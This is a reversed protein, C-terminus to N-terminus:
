KKTPSWDITLWFPRSPKDPAAFARRSTRGLLGRLKPRCAPYVRATAGFGTEPVPLGSWLKLVLVTLTPASAVTVGPPPVSSQFNPYKPLKANKSAEPVFAGNLLRWFVIKVRPWHFNPGFVATM